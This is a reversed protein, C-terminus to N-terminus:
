QDTSEWEHVCVCVCVCVRVCVCVCVCVFVACAKERQREGHGAEGRVVEMKRAEAGEGRLEMGGRM